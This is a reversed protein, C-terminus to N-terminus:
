RATDTKTTGVSYAPADRARLALADATGGNSNSISPCGLSEEVHLDTIRPGCIRAVDDIFEQASEALDADIM